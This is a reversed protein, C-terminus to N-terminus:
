YQRPGIAILEKTKLDYTKTKNSCQFKIQLRNQEMLDFQYTWRDNKDEKLKIIEQGDQNYLAYVDHKDENKVTFYYFNLLKNDKFFQFLEKSPQYYFHITQMGILNFEAPLIIKGSQDIIGMIAGEKQLSFAFLKDVIIDYNPHIDAYHAARQKVSELFPYAFPSITGDFDVIQIGKETESFYYKDYAMLVNKATNPKVNLTSDIATDYYPNPKGTESNSKQAWIENKKKVYLYSQFDKYLKLLIKKDTNLDFYGFQNDSNLYIMNKDLHTIVPYSCIESAKNDDLRLLKDDFKILNTQEPITQEGLFQKKTILYLQKNYHFLSKISEGEDFTYILKGNVNFLFSKSNWTITDLPYYGIYFIQKSTPPYTEGVLYRDITEYNPPILVQKTSTVMVGSKTGKMFISYPTDSFPYYKLKAKCSNFLICSLILLVYLINKM